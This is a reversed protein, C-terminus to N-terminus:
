FLEIGGESVKRFFIKGNSGLVDKELALHLISDAKTRIEKDIRAVADLTAQSDSVYLVGDIGDAMYYNLLKDRYRDPAKKSIEFEVGYVYPESNKPSLVLAADAQLKALSRFKPDEAIASSSQLLNETMLQSFTSLREFRFFLEAVRLDHLPSESKFMPRDIEFPWNERIEHWAKATLSVYRYVHSKTGIVSIELLGASELQRLRRPCATRFVNQFYRKQIQSFSAVRFAYIFKFIERDRWQLDIPM